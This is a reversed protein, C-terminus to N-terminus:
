ADNKLVVNELSISKSPLTAQTGLLRFIGPESKKFIGEGVMEATLAYIIRYAGMRSKTNMIRLTYLIDAADGIKLVGNNQEAIRKIREKHNQQNLLLERMSPHATEHRGTKRLHVALATNFAEAERALADRKAQLQELQKNIDVLETQIEALYKRTEEEWTNNGIVM